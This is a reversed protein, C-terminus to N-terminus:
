KVHTRTLVFLYQINVFMIVAFTMAGFFLVFFALGERVNPGIGGDDCGQLPAPWQCDYRLIWLRVQVVFVTDMLSTMVTVHM